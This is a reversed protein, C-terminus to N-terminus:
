GQMDEIRRRIMGSRLQAIDDETLRARALPLVLANEAVLHRRLGDAFAALAEAEAGTAGRREDRIARLAARLAPVRDVLAEHEAHLRDLTPAIEDEPPCRMLLLQRLDEDEDQILPGLEHDLFRLLSSAEAPDAIEARAIRDMTETMARMHMHDERIFELPHELKELDTPAGDVPGRRISDLGSKM